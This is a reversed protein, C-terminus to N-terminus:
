RKRVPGTFPDIGSLLRLQMATVQCNVQSQIQVSQSKTLDSIADLLAVVTYRGGFYGEKITTVSKKAKPVISTAYRRARHCERHLNGYSATVQQKLRRMEESRELSSKNIREAAADINGRNRDYIPLPISGQAVIAMDDAEESWRVGLGLTLDPIAQSQQLKLESIRARKIFDWQKIRPHFKLNSIIKDIPIAERRQLKIRGSARINPQLLGNWNSALQRRTTHLKIEASELAVYSEEAAIEGRVLDVEPSGGAEVRKKIPRLLNIFEKKQTRLLDVERQAGLVRVFDVGTQFVVAQRASQIVASAVDEKAAGSNLRAQKKGGLEFKQSLSFTLESKEFGSFEGSGLFNEVEVGLEPNPSRGAQYTEAQKAILESRKIKIRPDNELAKKIAQNLTIEAGISQTIIGLNLSLAAIIILSYHFVYFSHKKLNSM